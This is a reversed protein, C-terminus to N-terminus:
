GGSFCSEVFQNGFVTVDVEVTTEDKSMTDENDTPERASRIGAGGISWLARM